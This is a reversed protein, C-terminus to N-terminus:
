GPLTKGTLISSKLNATGDLTGCIGFRYKGFQPTYSVATRPVTTGTLSAPGYKRAARQMLQCIVLFYWLSTPDCKTRM